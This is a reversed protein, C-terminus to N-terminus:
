RLPTGLMRTRSLALMTAVLGLLKRGTWSLVLMRTVVLGLLKQRTRSLVLTRTEVLGLLRQGFFVASALTLPVGISTLKFLTWWINSHRRLRSCVLVTVLVCLRAGLLV